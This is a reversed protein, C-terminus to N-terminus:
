KNTLVGCNYFWDYGFKATNSRLYIQNSCFKVMLYLGQNIWFKVKFQLCDLLGVGQQNYYILHPIYPLNQVNNFIYGQSYFM